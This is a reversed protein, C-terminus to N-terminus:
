LHHHRIPVSWPHHGVIINKTTQGIHSIYPLHYWMNMRICRLSSTTTRWCRSKECSEYTKSVQFSYPVLLTISARSSTISIRFDIPCPYVYVNTHRNYTSFMYRYIIRSTREVRGRAKARSSIIRQKGNNSSRRNEM